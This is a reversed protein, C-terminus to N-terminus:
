SAALWHNLDRGLIGQLREVDDRFREALAVLTDPSMPPPRDLNGELVQDRLRRM